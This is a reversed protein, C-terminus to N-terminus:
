TFDGPASSQEVAWSFDNAYIEWAGTRDTENIGYPMSPAPDELDDWTVTAELHDQLRELAHQKAVEEDSFPGELGLIGDPGSSIVHWNSM